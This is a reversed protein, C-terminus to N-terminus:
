KSGLLAQLESLAIEVTTVTEGDAGRRRLVFERVGLDGLELAAIVVGKTRGTLPNGAKLTEVVSDGTWTPTVPHRHPNQTNM